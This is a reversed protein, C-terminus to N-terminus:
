LIDFFKMKAALVSIRLEQYTSDNEIVYDCNDRLWDSSVQAYVRKEAIDRSIKDREMIRQIRTEIKSYVCIIYDCERDFGSEFLAPADVIVGRSGNKEYEDILERVRNLIHKHTIENLVMFKKEAHVIDRLAPRNLVGDSLIREGFETVLEDLCESKKSTLEHYIKDTDISDIGFEIFLRCVLGKGSGSGGCLGIVKM